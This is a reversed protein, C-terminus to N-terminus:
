SKTLGIEIIKRLQTLKMPAVKELAYLVNEEFITNMIDLNETQYFTSWDLKSIEQRYKEPSFNKWSRKLIEQSAAMKDKTRVLVSITNHDSSSRVQNLHSIIRGPRNVWCQYVLSDVQGPWSRTIGKIIQVHGAAELVDKTRQVMKSHSADPNDWRHYDLNTDGILLCMKKKAALKWGDLFLNWCELQAAETKSDNDKGKLLLRHERYIGGIIMNSRNKTKISVWIVALDEHMMNKHVQIDIGEKSLLVIRAYKHKDMTSPLHIDYGGIKREETPLSAMMNAESLFLLDPQKELILAEIIIKKNQWLKNGANWHQMKVVNRDIRNGNKMKISKNRLKNSIWITRRSNTDLRCSNLWTERTDCNFYIHETTRTDAKMSYSNGVVSTNVPNVNTVETNHWFFGSEHETDVKLLHMNSTLILCSM